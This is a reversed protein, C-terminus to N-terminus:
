LKAPPDPREPQSARGLAVSAAEEAPLAKERLAKRVSQPFPAYDAPFGAREAIRRIDALYREHIEYLQERFRADCFYTRCGLPRRDRLTCLRGQWYPCHKESRLTQPPPPKECAYAVELSTAFLLHDQHEFDCCDGCAACVLGLREIERDVRLYMEELAQRVERPLSPFRVRPAFDAQSMPGDYSLSARSM